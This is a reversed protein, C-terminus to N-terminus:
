NVFGNRQVNGHHSVKLLMSPQAFIIAAKLILVSCVGYIMVSINHLHSLSSSFIDFFSQLASTQCIDTKFM